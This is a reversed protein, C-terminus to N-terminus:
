IDLHQANLQRFFSSCAEQNDFIAFIDDVYRLYLKPKSTQFKNILKTELNAMFFNALTPGLPSGMTVGSIQQYLEDKYLFLREQHYRLYLKPKSTQLKNIPKTELNAM